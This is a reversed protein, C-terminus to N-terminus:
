KKQEIESNEFKEDLFKKVLNHQSENGLSVVFEEHYDTSKEKLLRVITKIKAVTSKDAIKLSSLIDAIEPSTKKVENLYRQTLIL